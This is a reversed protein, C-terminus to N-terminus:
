ISKQRNCLNRFFSCLMFTVLFASAAFLNWIGLKWMWLQKSVKGGHSFIELTSNECNLPHKKMRVSYEFYMM